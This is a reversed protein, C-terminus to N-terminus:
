LEGKFVELLRGAARSLYSYEPEPQVDPQLHKPGRRISAASTRPSIADSILRPDRMTVKLNRSLDIFEGGSVLASVIDLGRGITTDPLVTANAIVSGEGVTCDRELNSFRTVVAASQVRSNRGVYVPAVMRASRHLRAGHGVWVGPRVERGHPAISCRGLFADVILQRLDRADALRNVYGTVLYPVPSDPLNGEAFAFPLSVASAVRDPDVIWWGLSGNKDSFPTVVQKKAFHFEFATSFNFEAHAGLKAVLVADSGRRAHAQIARSVAPWCLDHDGDTSVNSTPPNSGPDTVLVDIKTLGSKQLRAVTRDLVSKGLVEVCALSDPLFDHSGQRLGKNTITASTSASGSKSVVLIASTRFVSL